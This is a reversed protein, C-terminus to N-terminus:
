MKKIFFCKHQAMCVEQKLDGNLFITKVDMHHLELDFQAVLIMIIRFSGKMSVLSFTKNYDIGEKKTFGKAVFLTKYRKIVLLTKKDEQIYSITTAENPLKILDWVQNKAMSEMKEKIADYWFTSDEGSM